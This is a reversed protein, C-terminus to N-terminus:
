HTQRHLIKIYDGKAQKIGENTNHSANGKETMVIEYDKFTQSKISKLCRKLFYDGNKMKKSVPIVISIKM